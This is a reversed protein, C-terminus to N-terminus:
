RFAEESYTHRYPLEAEADLRDAIGHTVSAIGQLTMLILRPVLLLIGIILIPPWVFAVVFAVALGFSLGLGELMRDTHNIGPPRNSGIGGGGHALQYEAWGEAADTHHWAGRPRRAASRHGRISDHDALNEKGHAHMMRKM